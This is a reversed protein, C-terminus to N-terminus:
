YQLPSQPTAYFLETIRSTLANSIQQKKTEGRESAGLRDRLAVCYSATARPGAQIAAKLDDPVAVQSALTALVQAATWNGKTDFEVWVPSTAPDASRQVGHGAPAYAAEVLTRKGVPADPATAAAPAAPHESQKNAHESMAVQRQM